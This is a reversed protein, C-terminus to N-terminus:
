PQVPDTSTRMEQRIGSPETGSYSERKSANIEGANGCARDLNIQKARGDDNRINTLDAGTFIDMGRAFNGLLIEGAKRDRAIRNEWFSERSMLFVRGVLSAM